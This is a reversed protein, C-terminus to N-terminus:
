SSPLMNKPMGDDRRFIRKRPAIHQPEDAHGIRDICPAGEISAVILHIKGRPYRTMGQRLRHLQTCAVNEGFPESCNHNITGHRQAHKTPTHQCAQNDWLSFFVLVKSGSDFALRIGAVHRGAVKARRKLDNTLQSGNQMIWNDAFCAKARM